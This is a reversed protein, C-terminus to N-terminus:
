KCTGLRGISRINFEGVTGATGEFRLRITAVQSLVTALDVENGWGAGQKFKDWPFDVSVLTSSLYSTSKSVTAKYNNYGTLTRDDEPVLEIGFGIASEYVLCLGEWDSINVGRQSADYLDFGLLLYPYDYGEGLEAIGKIGGYEKVLSSYFYEYNNRNDGSPFIFTSTGEDNEDTATYWYKFERDNFGTNVNGTTDNWGCWMDGCPFPADTENEVVYFIESNAAKKTKEYPIVRIIGTPTKEVLDASLTVEQEYCTIGDPNEPGASEDLLDKGIDDESKKFVFRYGSGQVNSGYIITIKEGVKFTEGGNPYFVTVGDSVPCYHKENQESSSSSKVPDAKASSSAVSNGGGADKVCRVALKWQEHCSRDGFFSYDESTISVCKRYAEHETKDNTWFYAAQGYENLSGDGELYGKYSDAVYTSVLYASSNYYEEWEEVSPLRWGDICLNDLRTGSYLYGTLGCMEEDQKPCYNAEDNSSYFELALNRNMWYLNGVKVVPYILGSRQDELTQGEFVFKGSTEGYGYEDEFKQSYETCAALLFLLVLALIFHISGRRRSSSTLSFARSRRNHRDIVINM